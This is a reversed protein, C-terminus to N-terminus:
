ASTTVAGSGDFSGDAEIVRDRVNSQNTIVTVAFPGQGDNSASIRHLGPPLRVFYVAQAGSGSQEFPLDSVISTPPVPRFIDITWDGDAAVEFAYEDDSPIIVGRSGLFPSTSNTLISVREGATSLLTVAFRQSGEHRLTIVALGEALEIPETLLAGSGSLEAPPPTPAITATAATAPSDATPSAATRGSDATASTRTPSGAVPTTISTSTPRPSPTLALRAANTARQAEYTADAISGDDGGCAVLPIALVVVLGWHM